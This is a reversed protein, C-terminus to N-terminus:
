SQLDKKNKKAKREETKRVMYDGFKCYKTILYTPVMIVFSAVFDLVYHQKLFVTALIILVSIVYCSWRLWAPTTKKQNSYGIIIAIAMFCHQSPLCNIPKCTAWTLLLMKDSLTEAVLDPKVMETQWFFYIIGSIFFSICLTLWLNWHHKKDKGAVWFYTFIALPFTFYYVWVFESILPIKADLWIAPQVGSKGLIMNGTWSLEQIVLFILFPVIAYSIASFIKKLKSEKKEEKHFMLVNEEQTENLINVENEEVVASVAVEDILEQSDDFENTM